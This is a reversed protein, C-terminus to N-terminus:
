EHQVPRDGPPYEFASGSVFYEVSEDLPICRDLLKSRLIINGTDIGDNIFQVTKHCLLLGLCDLLELFQKAQTRERVKSIKSHSDSKRDSPRQVIRGVGPLLCIPGDGLGHSKM